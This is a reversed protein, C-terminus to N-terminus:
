SAEMYGPLYPLRITETFLPVGLIFLISGVYNDHVGLIEAFWRNGSIVPYIM